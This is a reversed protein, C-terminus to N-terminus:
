HSFTILQICRKVGEAGGRVGAVDMSDAGGRGGTM